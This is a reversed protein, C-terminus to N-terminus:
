LDGGLGGGTLFCAANVVRDLPKLYTDATSRWVASFCELFPCSLVAFPCSLFFEGLSGRSESGRLLQKSVSRLHKEFTMKSDFSVGLIDLDVSEKLM